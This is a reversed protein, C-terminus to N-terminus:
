ILLLSLSGSKEDSRTFYKSSNIVTYNELSIAVVFSIM